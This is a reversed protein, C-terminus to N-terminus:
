CEGMYQTEQPSTDSFWDIAVGRLTAPFQRVWDDENTVGNATWITECTKCHKIPDASGDGHFKPLNEKPGVITAGRVLKVCFPANLHVSSECATKSLSFCTILM